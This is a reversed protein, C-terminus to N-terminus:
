SDGRTGGCSNSQDSSAFSRISEEVFRSPYGIGLAELLPRWLEPIGLRVIVHAGDAPHHFGLETARLFLHREGIRDSAWRNYAKDGHKNDGIVPHDIRHLHRRAQHRRGTHLTIEALTFWGEDYRGIPEAVRGRGIARYETLAGMPEGGSPREIPSAISGGDSMHGRVLALYRKTVARDRFQRSLESSAEPTRALVMAGTTMRDLRHVSSVPGLQDALVGIVTPSRYDFSNSHTLMGPPKDVVVIQDDCFLVRVTGSSESEQV